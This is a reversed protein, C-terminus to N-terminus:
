GREDALPWANPACAGIGKTQQMMVPAPAGAAPCPRHGHGLAHGVEHNVVYHRYEDLGLGSAEAGERWRFLNVVAKGAQHCSFVRNTRLPRCLDDTAAPSALVVRFDAPGGAVRQLAVPAGGAGGGAWGRDDFLIGEVAAAFANPDEGIGGEVEVTFRRLAGTGVVASEGTAVLYTGDGREPVPEVVAPEEDPGAAPEPDVPTAPEEVAAAPAPTPAPREVSTTPAPNGGSAASLQEATRTTSALWASAAVLVAVIVLVASVVRPGAVGRRDGAPDGSAEPPEIQARTSLPPV